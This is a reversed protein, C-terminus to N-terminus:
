GGLTDALEQIIKLNDPGGIGRGASVIFDADQLNIKGTEKMVELVRVSIEEEKIDVPIDVYEGTKDSKEPLPFAKPRVSLVKVGDGIFKGWYLLNGAFCPRIFNLTSNNKEVDIVDAIVGARLKAGLYPAFDRGNGTGPVLVYDINSNSAILSAITKVFPQTRYYKFSSSKGGYVKQAGYSFLESSFSQPDEALVVASITGSGELDKIKSALSLVEISSKKIKNEEIEVVCLIEKAM